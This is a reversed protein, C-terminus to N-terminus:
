KRALLWHRLRAAVLEVVSYDTDMEALSELVSDPHEEVLARFDSDTIREISNKHDPCLMGNFM